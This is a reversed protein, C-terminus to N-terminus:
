FCCVCCMHTDGGGGPRHGRASSRSALTMHTMDGTNHTMDGIHTMLTQWVLGRPGAGRAWLRFQSLSNSIYCALPRAERAKNAKEIFYISRSFLVDAWARKRESPPPKKAVCLQQDLPGSPFSHTFFTGSKLATEFRPPRPKPDACFPRVFTCKFRKIFHHLFRDSSCRIRFLTFNIYIIIGNACVPSRVMGFSLLASVLKEQAAGAAASGRGSRGSSRSYCM